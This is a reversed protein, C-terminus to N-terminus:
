PHMKWMSLGIKVRQGLNWFVLAYVFHCRTAPKLGVEQGLDWMKYLIKYLFWSSSLHGAASILRNSCGYSQCVRTVYTPLWNCAVRFQLTVESLVDQFQHYRPSAKLGQLNIITQGQNQFIWWHGNGSGIWQLYRVYILGVSDVPSDCRKVYSHCVIPTGVM